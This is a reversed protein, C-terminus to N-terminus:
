TISRDDTVIEGRQGTVLKESNEVTHYSYCSLCGQRLFEVEGSIYVGVIRPQPTSVPLCM